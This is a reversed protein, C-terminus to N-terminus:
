ALIISLAVRATDAADFPVVTGNVLRYWSSFVVSAV